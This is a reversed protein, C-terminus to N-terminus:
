INALRERKSAVAVKAMGDRGQKWYRPRIRQAKSRRWERGGVGGGSGGSGYTEKGNVM